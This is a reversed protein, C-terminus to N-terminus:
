RNGEQANFPFLVVEVDEDSLVRIKLFLSKVSVLLRKFTLPESGYFGRPYYGWTLMKHKPLEKKVITYDILDFSIYDSPFQIMNQTILIMMRASEEYPALKMQYPLYYSTLYNASRFGLLFQPSQSEIVIQHHPVQLSDCIVNLRELANTSNEETLNKFDLWYSHQRGKIEYLYTLLDLQISVAPPHNVDFMQRESDFVLDLELGSFLTAVAQQKELSNVRHVWVKDPFLARFLADQFIVSFLFAGGIFTMVVLVVVKFKQTRNLLKM